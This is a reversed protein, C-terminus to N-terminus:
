LSTSARKENYNISTDILGFEKLNFLLVDYRDQTESSPDAFLPVNSNVSKSRKHERLEQLEHLSELLNEKQLTKITSHITGVTNSRTRCEVENSNPRKITVISRTAM